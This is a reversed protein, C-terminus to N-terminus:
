SQVVEYALPCLSNDTVQTIILRDERCQIPNIGHHM